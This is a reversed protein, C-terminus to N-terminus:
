IQTIDMELAIMVSVLSSINYRQGKFIKWIVVRNVGAEESLKKLTWRKDYMKQNVRDGIHLLVKEIQQDKNEEM